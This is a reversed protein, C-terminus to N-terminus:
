AQRADQQARAAAALEQQHEGAFEAFRGFVEKLAAARLDAPSLEPWTRRMQPTVSLRPSQATMRLRM